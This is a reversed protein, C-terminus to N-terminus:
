FQGNLYRKLSLKAGFLFSGGISAGDSGMSIGGGVSGVEAELEVTTGFIEFSLSPSWVSAMAGFSFSGSEIEASAEAHGFDFLSLSAHEWEWGGTAADFSVSGLGVNGESWRFSKM